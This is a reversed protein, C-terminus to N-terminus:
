YYSLPILLVSPLLGIYLVISSDTLPLFIPLLVLAPSDISILGLKILVLVRSM